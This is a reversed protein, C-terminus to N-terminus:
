KSVVIIIVNQDIYVLIHCTNRYYYKEELLCRRLHSVRTVTQRQVTWLVKGVPVTIAVTAKQFPLEMATHIEMTSVTQLLSPNKVFM